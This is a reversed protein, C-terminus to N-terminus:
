RQDFCSHKKKMEPYPSEWKVRQQLESVYEQSWRRWFHQQLRQILQWRSLRNEPLHTLDPDAISDLPRGILFHAPTLPSLDSSDSSLPTLPRSNLLGEIQVLLTYLEEFTLVNNGAVRKLHYKTSKVGAEWIGGFHPSYAPIFHWTLGVNEIIESVNKGELCTM